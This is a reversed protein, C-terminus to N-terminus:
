ALEVGPAPPVLPCYAGVHGPLEARSVHDHLRHCIASVGDLIDRFLTRRVLCHAECSLDRLSSLETLRFSVLKGAACFCRPVSVSVSVSIAVGSESVSVSVTSLMRKHTRGHM